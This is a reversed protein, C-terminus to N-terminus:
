HMTIMSREIGDRIRGGWSRVGADIPAFATALVNDRRMHVRKRGLIMVLMCYGLSLNAPPEDDCGMLQHAPDQTNSRDYKDSLTLWQGM